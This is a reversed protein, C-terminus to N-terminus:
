AVAELSGAQSPVQSEFDARSSEAREAADLLRQDASVPLTARLAAIRREYRRKEYEEMTISGNILATVDNYDTSM